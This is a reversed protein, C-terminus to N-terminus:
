WWRMVAASIVAIIGVLGCLLSLKHAATLQDLPRQALVLPNNYYAFVGLFCLGGALMTQAQTPSRSLLLAAFGVLFALWPWGGRQAQDFQQHDTM